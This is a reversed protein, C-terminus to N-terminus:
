RLTQLYALVDHMDSDTYKGLQEWHAEVPDDVTFKVRATSWSRTWGKEDILAITFEDRHALKGTVVQGSALTVRVTQPIKAPDGRGAPTPYLMRRLLALGVHRTAVGALDGTPSHCRACAHAFYKEGAAANGTQLDEPDVARRGGVASDGRKKQEHIFAVLAAIEPDPLPFAPMGKEIRGTRIHPGLKDGRVDTAVLTSRTLDPGTEGGFADRGHCFGCQAGFLVRGAEIQPAPYEQAVATEPRPVSAPSAQSPASDAAHASSLLNFSALVTAFLHALPLRSV